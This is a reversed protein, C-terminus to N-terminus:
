KRNLWWAVFAELVMKFGLRVGSFMLGLFTAWGFSDVTLSDLMPLIAM